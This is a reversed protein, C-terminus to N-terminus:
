SAARVKDQPMPQRGPTGEVPRRKGLMMRQLQYFDQVAATHERDLPYAAGLEQAIVLGSLFSLDHGGEPTTFSGCHYIGGRGQIFRTLMMIILNKLCLRHNVRRLPIKTQVQQLERGANFTVMCDAGAGELTPLHSSLVFTNSLRGASDVEVYTNFQTRVRDRHEAPFVSADTHVVAEAFTRDKECVYEVRRLLQRQLFSPERLAQLASISDCAFIVKHATYTQGGASTLTLTGDGNRAVQTIECGTHVHEAFDATMREFVVEPPVTWTAMRTTRALPVISELLPALVAPISGMLTTIFTASHVPVFLKRFLAGGVGFLTMLWVLPILNMPNLYSFHYLSRHALRRESPTFIRNVRAIFRVLRRWRGLAKAFRRDLEGQGDQSFVGEPHKVFYSIPIETFGVGLERLLAEYNHYLGGPWAVVFLPSRAEGGPLRWHFTKANGGLARDREFLQVPLGSRHLSWAAAVGAIGGGVVAVRPPGGKAPTREM